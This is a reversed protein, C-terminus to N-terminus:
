RGCAREAGRPLASCGPLVIHAVDRSFRGEPNGVLYSEFRGARSCLSALTKFNQSYCTYMNYRRSLSCCLRQDSQASACASIRRQQECIAYVPKRMVQSLYPCVFLHGAIRCPGVEWLSSFVKSSPASGVLFCLFLVARRWALYDFHYFVFSVCLCVM